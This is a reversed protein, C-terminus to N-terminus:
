ALCRRRRSAAVFGVLGVGAIVFSSPEPDLALTLISGVHAPTGFATYWDFGLDNIQGNVDFTGPGLMFHGAPVSLLAIFNPLDGLDVIAPSPIPGQPFNPPHLFGAPSKINLIAGPVDNIVEMNGTQKNVRLEPAADASGAQAVIATVIALGFLVRM